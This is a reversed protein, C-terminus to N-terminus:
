NDTLTFQVTSHRSCCHPPKSPKPEAQNLTQGSMQMVAAVSSRCAFTKVREGLILSRNQTAMANKKKMKKKTTNIYAIIMNLLLSCLTAFLDAVFHAEKEEKRSRWDVHCKM